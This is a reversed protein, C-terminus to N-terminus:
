TVVPSLSKPWRQKGLCLLEGPGCPVGVDCAAAKGVVGCHGDGQM